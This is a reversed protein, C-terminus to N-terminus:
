FDISATFLASRAPLVTLLDNANPAADSSGAIPGAVGAIKHSNQLNNIAAQLKIRQVASFPSRITYNVNLNTILLPDIKFQQHAGSKDDNYQRGIRNGSLNVAWGGSQWSVGLTETDSPAGAVWQGSSYKLSGVSANAFLSFGGGVVYNGELEVGQDTETGSLVYGVNGAADPAQPTYAGDLRTHFVDAAFTYSKANIVTGFQVTKARTSKPVPSVRANTVDFVSTSPIEDGIGAQGYVSWNSALLYNARLSPMADRYTIAHTINPAGGTLTNTKSNYSGGLWGVAGGNDQLHVFSQHYSALKVGPLLTLADGVKFEFEVYPQFTTTRYTESFNPANGFGIWTRPDAKSQYRYSDSRDVWLGFRLTGLSSEQSLRLLNGLDTYSNLKDVGSSTSVPTASLNTASNYNQKNNYRYTYLKEDVHWGGGLNSQLQVYSWGTYVKYFNYGYYNWDGPTGSLLKNYIGNDYDSRLIGKVSPTNSRLLLLNGYVTLTTDDNLYTRLKASGAQRDQKNFTQYGDSKLEHGNILFNTRHAGFDGSEYEVGEMHTNWSGMTGSVSTRQKPELERSRLDITGGFTAQGITSATGPSRDVVAGGLFQSPFFVWSHHSVGNTDNFPIGDFSMVFNDDKQGRMTVKTDGLGVGNPQVGFVGPTVMLLQSYDAIPSTAERIYRNSIISLSTGADVSNQSPAIAGASLNVLKSGTIVIEQAGSGEEAHVTAPLAAILAAIAGCIHTLNRNTYNM